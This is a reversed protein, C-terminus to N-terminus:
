SNDVLKQLHNATSNRSIVDTTLAQDSVYAPNCVRATPCQHLGSHPSSPTIRQTLWLLLSSLPLVPTPSLPTSSNPVFSSLLTDRSPQFHFVELVLSAPAPPLSALDLKAQNGHRRAPIQSCASNVTKLSWRTDNITHYWPRVFYILKNLSAKEVAYTIYHSFWVPLFLTPSSLWPTFLSVSTFSVFFISPFQSRSFILFFQLFTFFSFYIFMLFLFTFLLFHLLIFCTYFLPLYFFSSLCFFSPAFHPLFTCLLPCASGSGILGIWEM